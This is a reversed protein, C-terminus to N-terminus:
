QSKPASEKVNDALLQRVEAPTGETLSQDPLWLMSFRSFKILVGNPYIGREIWPLNPHNNFISVVLCDVLYLAGSLILLGFFVAQNSKLPKV